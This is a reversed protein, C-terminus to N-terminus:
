PWCGFRRWRSDLLTVPRFSASANTAAAPKTSFSAVADDLFAGTMEDAASDKGLLEIIAKLDM